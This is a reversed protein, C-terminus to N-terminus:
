IEEQLSELEIIRMINSGSKRTFPVGALIIITDGKTAVKEKLVSQCATSVMEQFSTIEQTLIPYTGWFLGMMRAISQNPTLGVILAKPRERTEMLTTTGRETFTVIAKVKITQAVKRAAATLSDSVTERVSPRHLQATSHSFPDDEVKQIIRHMMSVAELPYAGSASEASLMVADVADYIATAVDSAEARTPSPSHVMSDLMQTAVIVPKGLERCQHIIKKQMRPVDEPPMEVGLDGRAVMIADSFNIIDNLHELAKPKEIKTVLRARGKILSQAELVDEPRQVFSLAVWDVGLNLAFDLDVRDKQTLASVPLTIGPISLGKRNSLVGGVGVITKIETNTVEQVCLRIRGDDLLLDTGPILALFLEHHPLCVRRNTGPTSNNDLTFSTGPELTIQQEEFEGIRIKPGQLDALIAIPSQFEKEIDRILHYTRHHEHHTGHSFNLRFVDAGEEHLKKIMEYTHSAPGLTVVIKTKRSRLM